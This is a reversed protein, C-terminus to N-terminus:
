KLFNNTGTGAKVTLFINQSSHNVMDDAMQFLTNSSDFDTM